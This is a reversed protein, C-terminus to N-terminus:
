IIKLLKLLNPIESEFNVGYKVDTNERSTREICGCTYDVAVRSADELSFGNLLASCLASGFVDGTGHFYGDVRKRFYYNPKEGEFLSAVGLNYDDYHVGTLVVGKVGLSLLMELLNNIYSETYPGEVYEEGLLYCAETINPVIIDAKSCLKAMKKAFTEDFISYFKGSDGMVPDVVKICGENSFDELFREVIKIQRESGLYGSYICDYKRNLTKWHAGVPELEDTLDAFTYGEFGGTHTSLMATPLVSTEIGAASMIPLAVTLSCRGVCSLDHIALAKKQINM